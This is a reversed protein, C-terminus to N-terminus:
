AKTYSLLSTAKANLQEKFLFLANPDSSGPQSGHEQIPAGVRSTIQLNFVSM